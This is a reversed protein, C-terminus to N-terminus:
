PTMGRQSGLLLLSIVNWLKDLKQGIKKKWRLKKSSMPRDAMWPILQGQGLFHVKYRHLFPKRWIEASSHGTMVPRTSLIHRPKTFGSKTFRDPSLSTVFYVTKVRRPNRLLSFMYLSKLPSKYVRTVCVYWVTKWRNEFTQNRNTKLQQNWIM